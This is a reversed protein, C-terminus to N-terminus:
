AASKVQKKGKYIVKKRERRLQNTGKVRGPSKGRPKPLVRKPEITRIIRGFDRQVVSPSAVRAKYLPLDKLDFRDGYWKPHGRKNPTVAPKQYLVRNSRTRAITVLHKQSQVPGKFPVVCLTSDVM